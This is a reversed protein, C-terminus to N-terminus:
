CLDVYDPDEDFNVARRKSSNSPKSREARNSTVTKERKHGAETSVKVPLSTCSKRDKSKNPVRRVIKPSNEAPNREPSTPANTSTQTPALSTQTPALSTQRRLPSSVAASQQSHSSSTGSSASQNSTAIAASSQQSSSSAAQRSYFHRQQM